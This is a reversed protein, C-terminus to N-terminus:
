PDGGVGGMGGGDGGAGGGGGGAGGGDGGAGGGDGGTGGGTGGDGGGTGQLCANMKAQRTAEDSCDVALMCDRAKESPNWAGKECAIACLAYPMEHNNLGLILGCDTFKDCLYKCEESPEVCGLVDNCSADELCSVDEDNLAEDCLFKCSSAEGLKCGDLHECMADCRGPEDSGGAGGAGVKGGSGGTGDTGKGDDCALAGAGLCLALVLVGMRM